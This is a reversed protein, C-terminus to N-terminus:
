PDSVPRRDGRFRPGDSSASVLALEPPLLAELEDSAPDDLLPEDGVNAIAIAYTVTDASPDHDM